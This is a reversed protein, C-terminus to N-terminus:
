LLDLFGCEIHGFNDNSLSVSPRVPSSRASTIEEERDCSHQSVICNSTQKWKKKELELRTKKANTPRGCLEGNNKHLLEFLAFFFVCM